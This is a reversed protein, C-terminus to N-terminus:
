QYSLPCNVTLISSKVSSPWIYLLIVLNSCIGIFLSIISPLLFQLYRCIINNNLPNIDKGNFYYATYLIFGVVFAAPFFVASLSLSM